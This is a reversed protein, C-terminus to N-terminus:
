GQRRRGDLLGGLLGLVDDIEEMPNVDNNRGCKCPYTYCSFCCKAGEVYGENPCGCIPCDKIWVNLRGDKDHCKHSCSIGKLM